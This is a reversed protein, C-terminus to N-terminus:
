DTLLQKIYKPAGTNLACVNILTIDEQPFTGKIMVYQGEKNRMAQKIKFDAKDSILLAVGVKKQKSNAQLTM